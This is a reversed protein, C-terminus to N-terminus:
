NTFERLGWSRNVRSCYLNLSRPDVYTSKKETFVQVTRLGRNPTWLHLPGATHMSRCWKRCPVQADETPPDQSWDRSFVSSFSLNQSLWFNYMSNRSSPFPRNGSGGRKLTLQIYNREREKEEELTQMREKPKWTLPPFWRGFLCSEQPIGTDAM